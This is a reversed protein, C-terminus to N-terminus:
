AVLLIRKCYLSDSTNRRTRGGEVGKMIKSHFVLKAGATLSTLGCGVKPVPLSRLERFVRTTCVVPTECTVSHVLSPHPWPCCCNGRHGAILKPCAEMSQFPHLQVEINLAHIRFGLCEVAERAKVRVQRKKWLRHSFMSHVPSKATNESNFRVKCHGPRSFCTSLSGM